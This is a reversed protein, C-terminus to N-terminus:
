GQNPNKSTYQIVKVEVPWVQSFVADEYEWPNEDQQETAGESYDTEFFVGDSKRQVVLRHYVSWRGQDTIENEITKFDVETGRENIYFGEMLIDRGQEGTLTLIEREEM